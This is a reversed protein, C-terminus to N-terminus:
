KMDRFGFKNNRFMWAAVQYYATAVKVLSDNVVTEESKGNLFDPKYQQIKKPPMLVVLQDDTLYGLGQFTSIFAKDNGSPFNLIDRGLFKTRYNLKLLGLITPAIDIQATLRDFKQPTIIKPAYIIMPIHYGDVPLEVKGGAKACHDAVIIFITNDFWPKVSAEQIFRGIAYDTYKVAGERSQDDPNMDIRGKPFTYPRHNSVTMIQSFFPQGTQYDEDLKNLALTFMDEDAVGWINAYHIESPKLADRDIVRYGNNEYFHKMNDFYSYGGYIYSTNYNYEKLIAGLSFLNENGPRKVISQGPPPPISLTLAELGRVTRTGSAYLKTFFIGKQSLSDLQPTINQKNGFVGMFSASFSEVTILVINYKKATDPYKIERELNYIDDSIFHSNPGALEKRMISFAEDDPLTKYFRYFDLENRFFANAFEYIGNGALENNYSNRSFEKYSNSVFFYVFTPLLLLGASIVSRQLFGTQANVSRAIKKKLPWWIVVSFLFVLLLIRYLPYSEKINGVVENTYILYDVAIFNYRTGFEDWFFFESVANFTLLFVLLFFDFQLVIKRWKERFEKGRYLLFLYIAFRLIVFALVVKPIAGSFEKPIINTFAILFIIVVYMLGVIWKWPRNYARENTFWIHLIFPIILFSAVCLDYFFGIFFIGLLNKLSIDLSGASYIILTIRTLLSILLFVIALIYVPMFRRNAEKLVPLSIM